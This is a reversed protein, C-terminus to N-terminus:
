VSELVEDTKLYKRPGQIKLGFELMKLFKDFASDYM